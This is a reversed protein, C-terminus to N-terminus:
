HSIFEDKMVLTTKINVFCLPLIIVDLLSQM